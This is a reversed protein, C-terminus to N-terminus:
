GHDKETPIRFPCPFEKPPESFVAHMGAPRPALRRACNVCDARLQHGSAGVGHGECRAMDDLLSVM